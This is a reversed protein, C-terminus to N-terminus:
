KNEDNRHQPRQGNRPGRREMMKKQDAQYAEYQEPTLITKLEADYAEMNKRMEEPNGGGFGRRREQSISDGQQRQPRQPRQGQFGAGRQGRPGGMMRPRLKDAYKTNLELLKAAQEENLGYKKVTADTRHQIMETRDMQKRQGQQANDADQAMANFSMMLAAAIALVIKKMDTTKKTM